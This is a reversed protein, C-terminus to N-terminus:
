DTPAEISDSTDPFAATPFLRVQGSLEKQNKERAKDRQNGRAMIILWLTQNLKLYLNPNPTEQNSSPHKLNLFIYKSKSPLNCAKFYIETGGSYSLQLSYLVVRAM